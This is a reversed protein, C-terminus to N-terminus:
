FTTTITRVRTSDYNGGFIYLKDKVIASQSLHTYKKSNKSDPQNVITPTSTGDGTMLYSEKLNEVIVLINEDDKL